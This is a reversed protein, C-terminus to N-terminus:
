DWHTESGQSEGGCMQSKERKARHVLIKSKKIIAPTLEGRKGKGRGQNQIRDDFPFTEKEVEAGWREDSVLKKRQKGEGQRAKKL